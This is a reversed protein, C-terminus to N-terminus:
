PVGAHAADDHSTVAVMPQNFTVSLHPAVPVDGSPSFRVVELTRSAAPPAEGPEAPPFPARETEGTRPPPQSRERLSLEKEDSPDTPLAPLRSLLRVAEKDTLKAASPTPI